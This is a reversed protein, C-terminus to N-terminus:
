GSGMLVVDLLVLAHTPIIRSKGAYDAYSVNATDYNLDKALFARFWSDPISFAVAISSGNAAVETITQSSFNAGKIMGYWLFQAEPTTPGQWIKGVVDATKQTFTNTTGNCTYNKSVLSQADFACLAPASIIGDVLGDMADCAAIVEANVADLECQTPAYGENNMVTYPWQQASFACICPNSDPHVFILSAHFSHSVSHLREM